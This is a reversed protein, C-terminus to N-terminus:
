GPDAPTVTYRGGDVSLRAGFEPLVWTWRGGEAYLRLPFRQQLDGLINFLGDPGGDPVPVPGDTFRGYIVGDVVAGMWAPPERDGFRVWVAEHVDARLEADDDGAAGLGYLITALGTTLRPYAAVWTVITYDAPGLSLVLNLRPMVWRWRDGDRDMWPSGGDQTTVDLLVAILGEPGGPCPVPEDTTRGALVADFLPGAWAPVPRDGFSRTVARDVATRLAEDDAKALGLRHAVTSLRVTLPPYTM